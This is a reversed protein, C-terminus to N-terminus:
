STKRSKVLDFLSIATNSMQDVQAVNSKDRDVKSSINTTIAHVSANLDIVSNKTGKAADVVFNIKESKMKMDEKLENTRHQLSTTELNLKDMREKLNNASGKIEKMPEKMGKILLVVGIAAVILGLVILALAIYLWMATDM